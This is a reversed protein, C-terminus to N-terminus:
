VAMWAPETLEIYDMRDKLMEYIVVLIKRAVAVLAKKRGLRRAWRQYQWEFITGKTRIAAWAAQVL